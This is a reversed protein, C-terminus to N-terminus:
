REDVYDHSNHQQIKAARHARWLEVATRAQDLDKFRTPLVKTGHRVEFGQKVDGHIECMLNKDVEIMVVPAGSSSSASEPMTPNIVPEMQPRTGLEQETPDEDVPEQEKDKIMNSLAKGVTHGALSAAAQTIPKAATGVLARGAMAGAVPLAAAIAPIIEEIPEQESHKDSNEIDKVAKKQIDKQDKVQDSLMDLYHTLDKKVRSLMDEEVNRIAEELPTQAVDMEVDDGVMYKEAPHPRVKGGLVPSQDKMKFLAPLQPVERQAQNLGHKVGVPTIKGEMTDLQRLFNGINFQSM